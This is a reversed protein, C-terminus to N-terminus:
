AKNQVLTSEILTHVCARSPDYIVQLIQGVRATVSPRCLHLDRFYREREISVKLSSPTMKMVRRPMHGAAKSGGEGTGVGQLHRKIARKLAHEFSPM